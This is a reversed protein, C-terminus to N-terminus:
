RPTPGPFPGARGRPRGGSWCTSGTARPTMAPRVCAPVRRSAAVVPTETNGKGLLFRTRSGVSARSSGAGQTRARRRPRSRSRRATRCCSRATWRSPHGGRRGSAPAPRRCARWRSRCGALAAAQQEALTSSLSLAAAREALGDVLGLVVRVSLLRLVAEAEGLGLALLAGLFIFMAGVGLAQRAAVAAAKAGGGLWGGGDRM